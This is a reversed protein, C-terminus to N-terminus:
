QIFQMGASIDYISHENTQYLTTADLYVDDKQCLCYETDPVPKTPAFGMGGIILLHHKGNCEFSVMGGCVKRMVPLDPDTEQLVKWHLTDISLQTISNHLDDQKLFNHGGFYYAQDGIVSCCYGAIGLPPMGTTTEVAWKGNSLSFKQIDLFFREVQDYTIRLRGCM